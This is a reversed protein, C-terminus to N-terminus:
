RPGAGFPLYTYPLIKHRNEPLFREPTFKEANPYYEESHHIAYSLIDVTQGKQITIGTDGLKYDESAVRSTKTAPSHLRLTESLVADLYPLRALLNYDIEGNADFSSRMEEYLKQQIHANLALEYSCYTLLTATTEYGAAFFVIGQAQIEVETLMKNSLKIDLVKSEVALEDAGENVHHAEHIDTENRNSDSGKEANMMLAMFDNYKKDSKQRMKLIQTVIGCFFTISNEDTFTRINIMKLVFAPFLIVAFFKWVSRKFFNRANIIFPDNPDKHTNTKTAFACNAIVDMTYCGFMDKVNIDKRQKAYTDLVDLFENLSQRVLPYMKRMKGSTFTPSVISRIRKWDEDKASALNLDFVPHSINPNSRRNVFKNFDRVIIQKIM